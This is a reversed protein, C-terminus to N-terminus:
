EPEEVDPLVRDITDYLRGIVRGIEGWSTIQWERGFRKGGQSPGGEVKLYDESWSSDGDGHRGALGM